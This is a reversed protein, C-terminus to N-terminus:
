LLLLLQLEQLHQLLAERRPRWGGPRRSTLLVLSASRNANVQVVRGDFMSGTAAQLPM